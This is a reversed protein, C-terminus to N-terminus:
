RVCIGDAGPRRPAGGVTVVDLIRLGPVGLRDHTEADTLLVNMRQYTANFGALSVDILQRWIRRTEAHGAQLLVVRDRAREAFEAVALDDRQRLIEGIERAQDGFEACKGAM